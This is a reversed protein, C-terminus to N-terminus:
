KAKVPPPLLPALYKMVVRAVIKHGAATPHIGDPQNLKADGGVGDLLFPILTAKASAAVAPFIKEFDATYTAGYNTPIKMGALMLAAGSERALDLTEELNKATAALDQGRLGDNGGLEVIIVDPKAPGKLLWRIRSPGSASTAGSIGANIVVANPWGKAKLDNEVLAPWAEDPKVGLGETLSDGLCLIRPTGTPADRSPKTADPGNAAFAVSALLSIFPSLLISCRM